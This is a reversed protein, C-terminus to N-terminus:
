WLTRLSDNTTLSRKWIRHPDCIFLRRGARKSIRGVITPIYRPGVGRFGRRELFGEKAGLVIYAAWSRGLELSKRAGFFPRKRTPFAVKQDRRPGARRDGSAMPEIARGDCIICHDCHSLRWRM